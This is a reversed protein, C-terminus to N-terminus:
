HIENVNNIMEIFVCKMKAIEIFIFSGNEQKRRRSRKEELLNDTKRNFKVM